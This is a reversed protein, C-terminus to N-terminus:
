SRSSEDSYYKDYRKGYYHEGGYKKARDPNVSNLVVGGIRKHFSVRKISAEILERPTSAWEVVFITKDCLNSVLVPDVVPGVPPTDVVVYDFTERLQSILLKMRESSLVDTPNLTKGGAPIVTLKVDTQAKLVQEPKAAGVLLDVIGKERELKFFHSVSPHRLDADVVVVRLGSSAASIALSIAITTKGEGPRSSTIQIVKPPRDVDSM